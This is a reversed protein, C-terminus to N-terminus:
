AKQSQMGDLFLIEVQENPQYLPLASSGRTYLQKGLAKYPFFIRLTIIPKSPASQCTISGKIFEPLNGIMLVSTSLPQRPVKCEVIGGFEGGAQAEM